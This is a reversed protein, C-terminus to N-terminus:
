LENVRPPLLINPRLIDHRSHIAQAVCGLLARGSFPKLLYHARGLKEAEERVAPEDHATIFIAPTRRSSHPLSRYFELGSMGPLQIDLVLCDARSAGDAVIAAEASAFREAAFGGARLIREIAPGMSVDDEVVVIRPTRTSMSLEHLERHDRLGEASQQDLRVVFQCRAFGNGRRSRSPRFIPQRASNM